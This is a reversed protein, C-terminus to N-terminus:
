RRVSRCLGLRCWLPPEVNINPHTYRVKSSPNSIKKGLLKGIIGLGIAHILVTALVLFTSVCLEVLMDTQDPAGM